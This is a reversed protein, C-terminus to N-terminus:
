PADETVTLTGLMPLTKEEAAVDQAPSLLRYNEVTGTEYICNGLAARYISKGLLRGEFFREVALRVADKATQASVGAKPTVAVTVPVSQVTPAMVTVDVAIERVQEIDAQVEDILAQEPVGAASAIVVGVTGIGQWRPLVAAQEVGPHSLARMEYFAANAGNPLRTFSDLVRERLSEDEEQASGGTFASPNLVGVVGTPALTMQTITEAGVNGAGGVSEAEAPVDAYLSGAEISGAETTVFRVLGATTCVTGVPITLDDELATDIRFRLTGEAKTGSKRTVGRMAAHYDLYQGSATQPFSQRLAWDAYAYLTQIEAAAAYLRVALDATDEMAFGTKEEFVSLMGSYIEQVEKM